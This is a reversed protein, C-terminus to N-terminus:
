LGKIRRPLRKFDMVNISQNHLLKERTMEGKRGKFLYTIRKYNAM